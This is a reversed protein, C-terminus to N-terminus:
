STLYPCQPLETFILYVAGFKWTSLILCKDLILIVAYLCAKLLGYGNDSHMHLGQKCYDYSLNLSLLVMICPLFTDDKECNLKDLGKKSALEVARWNFMYRCGYESTNKNKSNNKSNQIKRLIIRLIVIKM